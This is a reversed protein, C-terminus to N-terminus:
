ALTTPSRAARARSLAQAYQAEQNRTITTIVRFLLGGSALLLPSVMAIHLWDIMILTEATDDLAFRPLYAVVFSGLWLAWWVNVLLADPDPRNPHSRKWIEKMVQYPRFLSIIPIFWSRVAWGSSYRLQVGMAVLNRSARYIWMLVALATAAFVGIWAIALNAERTDNSTFEAERVAEGAVVRELLQIELYSSAMSWLSVLGFVVLLVRAAMARRTLPEWTLDEGSSADHRFAVM